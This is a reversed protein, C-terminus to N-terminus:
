DPWMSLGAAADDTRRAIDPYDVPDRVPDDLEVFFARVRMFEGEFAGTAAVALEFMEVGNGYVGVAADPNAVFAIIADLHEVFFAFVYRFEAGFSGASCNSKPKGFPCGRWPPSSTQIVSALFLRM